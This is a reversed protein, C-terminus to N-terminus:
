LYITTYTNYTCWRTYQQTSWHTTKCHPDGRRVFTHTKRSIINKLQLEHTKRTFGLRTPRTSACRDLNEIWGPTVLICWSKFLTYQHILVFFSTTYKTEFHWVQRSTFACCWNGHPSNFDNSTSACFYSYTVYSKTVLRGLVRLFCLEVQTTASLNVLNVCKIGVFAVWVVSYRARNYMSLMTLSCPM